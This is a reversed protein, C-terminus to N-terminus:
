GEKPHKLNEDTGDEIYCVHYHIPLESRLWEALKQGALRFEQEAVHSAFGSRVPDDAVLTSDYVAAWRNLADALQGSIPLTRPDVNLCPDSLWLPFCGYDAM